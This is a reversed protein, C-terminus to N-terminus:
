NLPSVITQSYSNLLSNIGNTKLQISMNLSNYNNKVKNINKEPFSIKGSAVNKISTFGRNPGPNPINNNTSNANNTKYISTNIKKPKSKSNSNNSSKFPMYSGNNNNNTSQLTNYALSNNMLNISLSKGNRIFDNKKNLKVGSVYKSFGSSVSSTQLMNNSSTDRNLEKTISPVFSFNNAFNNNINTKNARQKEEDYNLSNEENNGQETLNYLAMSHTRFNKKTQNNLFSSNSAHSNSSNRGELNEKQKSIMSLSPTHSERLPDTKDRISNTNTDYSKTAMISNTLDLSLTRSNKNKIDNNNNNNLHVIHGISLHSESQNTHNMLDIKHRQALKKELNSLSISPSNLSKNFNGKTKM